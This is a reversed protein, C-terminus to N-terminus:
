EALQTVGGNEPNSTSAHTQSTSNADHDQTEKESHLALSDFGTPRLSLQNVALGAEM